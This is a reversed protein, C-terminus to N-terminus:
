GSDPSTPVRTLAYQQEPTQNKPLPAYQFVTLSSSSAESSNPKAASGREQVKGRKRRRGRRALEWVLVLCFRVPVYLVSELSEAQRWYLSDVASLDDLDDHLM